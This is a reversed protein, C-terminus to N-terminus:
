LSFLTILLMIMVAEHVNINRLGFVDSIFRNWVAKSLFAGFFLIVIIIAIASVIAISPSWEFVKDWPVDPEEPVFFYNMIGSFCIYLFLIINFSFTIKSKIM